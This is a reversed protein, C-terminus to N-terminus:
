NIKKIVEINNNFMDLYTKGNNFDDASINQMSYLLEVSVESGNYSANKIDKSIENKVAEAINGDSLEIIFIAKLQNTEVSNKLSVIKSTPVNKDSSCGALAGIVEIGYHKEFYLFPNRDAVVISGKNTSAIANKMKGDLENLSNVYSKANAEYKDKNDSDIESLRKAVANVIKIYNTPDTWVHEDYEVEEEHEHDHEEEDHDEEEEYLSGELISFMSLAKKKADDNGLIKEEVWESDSEGGIYIFLDCNLVAKIDTASPQYSHIDNAPKILMKITKDTDKTVARAADYGVFNTVVIDYSTNDGCSSLFLLCSFVLGIFGLIKKM